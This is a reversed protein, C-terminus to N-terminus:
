FSAPLSLGFLLVVSDIFGWGLLVFPMCTFCIGWALHSLASFCGNRMHNLWAKRQKLSGFYRLSVAIGSAACCSGAVSLGGNMM